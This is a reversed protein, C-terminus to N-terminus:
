QVPWYDLSARNTFNTDYDSSGYAYEFVNTANTLRMIQYAWSASQKGFYTYTTQSYDDIDRIKYKSDTEVGSWWPWTVVLWSKTPDSSIEVVNASRQTISDQIKVSTAKAWM